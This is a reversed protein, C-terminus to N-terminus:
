MVVSKGTIWLSRPLRIMIGVINMDYSTNYGGGGMPIPNDSLEVIEWVYM